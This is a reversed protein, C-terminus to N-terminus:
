GPIPSWTRPLAALRKILEIVAPTFRDDRTESYTLLDRVYDECYSSLLWDAVEQHGIEIGASGSPVAIKAEEREEPSLNCQDLTRNWSEGNRVAVADLWEPPLRLPTPSTSPTFEMLYHRLHLYSKDPGDEPLNQKALFLLAAAPASLSTNVSPLRDQSPVKLSLLGEAHSVFDTVVDRKKHFM